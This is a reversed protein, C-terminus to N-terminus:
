NQRQMDNNQWKLRYALPTCGIDEKFIKGFYSSTGFGCANSIETLSKEEKMLMQCAMQVRYNRIYEVPTMHLCERFVRYCGRESLHVTDALQAVSIKESYHEQIYIMMQKIQSNSKEYVVKERVKDKSIELFRIWIESLKERLRIEYFKDNENLSFSEKILELVIKHEPNDPFLALIDIATDNTLPTVYKKDIENGKGGSILVPDFLHILQINNDVGPQLKTMHLVNSNVLGGSGALFVQKGQPTCYELSGREIYFLELTSHWHWPVYREPYKDLEVCSAIHPFKETYGPLLEEKSNPKFLLKDVTKM